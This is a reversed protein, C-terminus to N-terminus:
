YDSAYGPIVYSVLCLWFSCWTIICLRRDRKRLILSLLLLVVVSVWHLHEWWRPVDVAGGVVFMEYLPQLWAGALGIGICAFVTARISFPTTQTM